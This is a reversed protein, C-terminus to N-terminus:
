DRDPSRRLYGGRYQHGANANVRGSVAAPPLTLDDPLPLAVIENTKPDTRWAHFVNRLRTETDPDMPFDPDAYHRVKTGGVTVLSVSDPIGAGDNGPIFRWNMLEKFPGAGRGQYPPLTQDPNVGYLNCADLLLVAGRLGKMSEPLDFGGQPIQTPQETSSQAKRKAPDNPIGRPM